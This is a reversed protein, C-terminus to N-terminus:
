LYTSLVWSLWNTLKALHNLTRKRVLKNHTRTGNCDSLSWIDPSRRALLKKVNLNIYLTYESQFAHAIHHFCLTLHMKCIVVWSEAWDTQWNSWISSYEWVFLTPSPKLGTANVSVESITCRELLCNRSMSAFMPLPNVRFRIGSMVLVFLWISRVSIYEDSLEIM